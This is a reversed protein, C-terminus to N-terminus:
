LSPRDFLFKGAPINYTLAGVACGAQLIAVVNGRLAAFNDATIAFTVGFKPSDFLGSIM